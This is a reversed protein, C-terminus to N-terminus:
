KVEDSMWTKIVAIATNITLWRFTEHTGDERHCVVCFQGPRDTEEIICRLKRRPENKCTDHSYGPAGCRPCHGYILLENPSKKEFAADGKTVEAAWDQGGSM